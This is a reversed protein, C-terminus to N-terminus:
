LSTTTRRAARSTDIQKSGKKWEPFHEGFKQTVKGETMQVWYGGRSMTFPAHVKSLYDFQDSGSAQPDFWAPTVFNSVAVKHQYVTIDYGDSEVPDCVEYSILLGTSSQAWLSVNPDVFTELVEHSLVSSVAYKGSLATGGADLSPKAFVRGYILDGQEETHWGLDGAQDADDLIAIVWTGPAADELISSYMVPIPEKGWLPAAHHRLQTACARTMLKVDDNSVLTSKNIVVISTM